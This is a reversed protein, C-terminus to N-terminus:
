KIKIEIFETSSPRALTSSGSYYTVIIRPNNSDFTYDVLGYTVGSDADYYPMLQDGGSMVFGTIFKDYLYSHSIAYEWRNYLSNWTWDYTNITISKTETTTTAPLESKKVYQSMDEKKCSTLSGVVIGVGVLLKGIKM